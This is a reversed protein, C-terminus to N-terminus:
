SKSATRKARKLQQLLEQPFASADVDRWYQEILGEASILVANRRAGGAGATAAGFAISVSLDTDCLLPFEFGNADAFAKNALADDNSVGVVAINHAAYDKL